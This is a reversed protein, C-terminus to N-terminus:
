LWKYVAYTTNSAFSSPYFRLCTIVSHHELAGGVFRRKTKCARSFATDTEHVYLDLILVSAETALPKQINSTFWHRFHFTFTNCASSHGIMM